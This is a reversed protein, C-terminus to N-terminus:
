KAGGGAKRAAQESHKVSKGAFDRAASGDGEKVEENAADLYAAGLYYDMPAKTEAGAAKAKDLSAKANQIANATSCGAFLAVCALVVVARSWITKM